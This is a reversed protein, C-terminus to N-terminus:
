KNTMKYLLSELNSYHLTRALGGLLVRSKGCEEITIDELLDEAYKRRSIARVKKKINTLYSINDKVAADIEGRLIIDGHGQVINELGLKGVEKITAINDDVDGDVVHPVPM